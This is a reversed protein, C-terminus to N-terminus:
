LFRFGFKTKRFLIDANSCPGEKISNSKENKQISEVLALFNKAAVKANWINLMTLYANRALNQMESPHDILWEVHEIMKNWDCDNFTLGNYKEQILYPVSGINECAVVACACNMSENVVAGWGEQRDSTVVAIDSQMMYDRVKSSPVAGLLQVEHELHYKAILNRLTDEEKGIGIINILFSLGKGKLYKALFIMSEPHKLQILRGVWIIRITLGTDIRRDQKSRLLVDANGYDIVEPFYGWKFIRNPNMGSLFYDAPGFASASLLYGKNYFLSAYTYVPWKLYKILGKYRSEDDRFTLKGTRYRKKILSLPAEGCIVVDFDCLMRIIRSSTKESYKLVYPVEYQQYGLKRQELQMEETEVFYYNGDGLLRYLEDALPKQHHNFMNSLYLLKM